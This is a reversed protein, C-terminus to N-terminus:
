TVFVQFGQGDLYIRGKDKLTRSLELLEAQEMAMTPQLQSMQAIRPRKKCAHLRADAPRKEADAKRSCFCKEGTCMGKGCFSVNGPRERTLWEGLQWHLAPYKMM